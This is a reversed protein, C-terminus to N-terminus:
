GVLWYSSKLLVVNQWNIKPAPITITRLPFLNSCSVFIPTIFKGSGARFCEHLANPLDTLPRTFIWGLSQLIESYGKYCFAIEQLYRWIKIRLISLHKRNTVLALFRQFNVVIELFAFFLICTKRLFVSKKPFFNIIKRKM